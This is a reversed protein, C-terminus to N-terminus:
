YIGLQMHKMDQHLWQHLRHYICAPQFGTVALALTLSRFVKFCCCYLRDRERLTGGM